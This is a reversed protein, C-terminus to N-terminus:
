RERASIILERVLRSIDYSPTDGIKNVVNDIKGLTELSSGTLDLMRTRSLDVLAMIDYIQEQDFSIAFRSYGKDLSEGLFFLDRGENVIVYVFRNNKFVGKSIGELLLGYNENM